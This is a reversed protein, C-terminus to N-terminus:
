REFDSPFDPWGRGWVIKQTSFDDMDTCNRLNYPTVGKDARRELKPYHKDLHTKIAPYDDIDIPKIGKEKIGNHSNILWLDAFRCQYRKIDIGRLIPRIIEASKPDAKIRNERETGTIIFAENCRTLAGRFINIDWDRLPVGAAEIKSKIEQEIGSM